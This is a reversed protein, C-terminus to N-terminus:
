KREGLLKVLIAKQVHLRNEAEDFVVSNASDIVEDTIEEGRHAPLCHMILAKKNALKVLDKNIQFDKFIEKRQQKESEQGMSAWVDTYIVDANKVAAEPDNGLAIKGGSGQAFQKAESTINTQPEYGKPTAVNMQMGSIAASYMLSHCVNNGDGVYALTIGKLKGFKEKITFLDALAQCPHSLDSLGNIVPISASRALEVVNNHGFTRLVIGDVYRSLTKATDKITERQGASIDEKMYLANGGLQFMGVEFSVRTRLSPKHFILCLTKGKLTNAFKSKNKKLKQTLDFIEKIEVDTLDKISILDKKM